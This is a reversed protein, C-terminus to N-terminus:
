GHGHVYVRTAGGADAQMPHRRGCDFRDGAATAGPRGASEEVLRTRGTGRATSRCRQLLLHAM